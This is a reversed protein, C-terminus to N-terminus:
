RSRCSPPSRTCRTPGAASVIRIPVARPVRSNTMRRLRCSRRELVCVFAISIRLLSQIQAVTGSAILYESVGPMTLVTLGSARLWAIAADVRSQPVGFRQEYQDSDLFQQYLPSAPDYEGTIYAAEGAPDGGQLGVGIGIVRAPDTAGTPTLVSITHLVNNVLVATSSDAAAEHLPLVLATCLIAITVAAISTRM